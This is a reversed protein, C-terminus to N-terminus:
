VYGSILKATATYTGADKAETTGSLTYGAGENVGIQAEGNYTLENPQPIPVVDKRFHFKIVFVKQGVLKLLEDSTVNTLAFNMDSTQGVVLTSLDEPVYKFYPDPSGNFITGDM